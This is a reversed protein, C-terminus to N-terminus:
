VLTSLPRLDNVDGYVGKYDTGAGNLHLASGHAIYRVKGFAGQGVVSLLEFDHLGVRSPVQMPEYGPRPSGIPLAISGAAVLDDAEMELKADHMIEENKLQISHAAEFPLQGAEERATSDSECGVSSGRLQTLLCTDTYSKLYVLSSTLEM